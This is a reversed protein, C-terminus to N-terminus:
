GCCGAAVFTEFLRRFEPAVQVLREPHFQVAWVCRAGIMEMAEVIGDPARAVVAFGSAVRDVAQHASKKPRYGFSGPQFDAEFIPELVGKLAGQVM